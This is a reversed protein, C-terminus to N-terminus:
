KNHILRVLNRSIELCHDIKGSYIEFLNHCLEIVSSERADTSQLNVGVPRIGILPKGSIVPKSEPLIQEVRDMLTLSAKSIRVSNKEAWDPTLWYEPVETGTEVELRSPNPGYILYSHSFGKPLVTLFDGDIITVGIKEINLKLELTLTRHYEMLKPRVSNLGALIPRVGYTAFVLMDFLGLENDQSSLGWKSAYQKVERVKCNLNLKIQRCSLERAFLERLSDLDVVGEKNSVALSVGMPNIGLQELQELEILEADSKLKGLFQRMEKLSVKSGKEALLYYNNFNTNVAGAFREVFSDYNRLSQKATPLHRPYHLGKHIRLLSKSTSGSLIRGKEEFVDVRYGLDNLDIALQLGFIGAGVIAVRQM